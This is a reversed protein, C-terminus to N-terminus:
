EPTLYAQPRNVTLQLAGDTGGSENVRWSAGSAGMYRATITTANTCWSLAGMYSLDFVDTDSDSAVAALPTRHTLVRPLISLVFFPTGANQEVIGIVRAEEAPVIILYDIDLSGSVASAQVGVSVSIGYRYSRLSAMGLYVARPTTGASGDIVVPPTESYVTSASLPSGFRARVQWSTTSSNPRVMAFVSVLQRPLLGTAGWASYTVATKDPTYRLVSGGSAYNAVDAVVTYAAANGNTLSEGEILLNQTTGQTLILNAPGITTNDFGGIQIDTPSPVSSGSALTATMAQPNTTLPSSASQSTTGLYIGDRTLEVTVGRMAYVTLDDLYQVPASPPQEAGRVRTRMEIGGHLQVTLTIPNGRGSREFNNAQDLLLVLSKFAALVAAQTAGYINIKLSESVATYPSQRGLQSVGLVAVGPSWGGSQLVYPATIESGALNITGAPTGDSLEIRHPM